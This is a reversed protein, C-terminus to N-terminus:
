PILLTVNEVGTVSVTQSTSFTGDGQAVGANPWYACTENSECFGDGDGSVEGARVLYTVTCAGGDFVSGGARFDCEAQDAAPSRTVVTQATLEGVPTSLGAIQSGPSPAFEIVFCDSCEGGFRLSLDTWIRTDTEFNFVDTEGDIEFPFSVGNAAVSDSVEGIVAEPFSQTLAVQTGTSPPIPACSSDIGVGTGSGLSCGTADIALTGEVTFNSSDRLSTFLGDVFVDRIVTNNSNSLSFAQGQPSEIMAGEITTGNSNSISMISANVGGLTVNRIVTGNHNSLSLINPNGRNGYTLVDQVRVGSPLVPGGLTTDYVLSIATISRDTFRGMRIGRIDLDSSPTMRTTEIAGQTEFMSLSHLRQHSASIQVGRGSTARVTVDEVTSFEGSLVIGSGACDEINTKFIRNYSNEVAVCSAGEVGVNSVRGRFAGHLGNMVLGNVDQGGTTLDADVTVFNGSVVLAGTDGTSGLSVGEVTVVTAGVGTVTVESDNTGFVYVTGDGDYTSVATGDEVPNPWGPFNAGPLTRGNLTDEISPAFPVYGATSFANRLLMYDYSFAVAQGTTDDCSWRLIEQSDSITLGECSTYGPLEFRYVLGAHFCADFGIDTGAEEDPNCRTGTADLFSSGDDSVYDGLRAASSYVPVAPSLCFTDLPGPPVAPDTIELEGLVTCRIGENTVDDVVIAPATEGVLLPVFLTTEVAGNASVTAQGLRDEGDAFASVSFGSGVDGIVELDVRYRPPECDISITDNVDGAVGRGNVITCDQIPNGGVSVVQVDYLQGDPVSQIGNGLDDLEVAVGNIVIQVNPLTLGEVTVPLDVCGAGDERVAEPAEALCQTQDDFLPVTAELLGGVLVEFRTTSPARLPGISSIGGAISYIGTRLVTAEGFTVPVTRDREDILIIRDDSGLSEGGLVDATIRIAGQERFPLTLENPGSVVDRTVEGFYAALEDLDADGIGAIGELSFVRSRGPPVQVAVETDTPELEVAIPAIDPGTVTFTIRELPIGTLAARQQLPNLDVEIEADAGCGALLFGVM